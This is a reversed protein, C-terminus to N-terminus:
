IGLAQTMQVSCSQGDGALQGWFIQLSPLLPKGFAFPSGVGIAWGVAIDAARGTADQLVCVAFKDNRIVQVQVLPHALQVSGTSCLRCNSDFQHLQSPLGALPYTHALHMKSGRSHRGRCCAEGLAVVDKLLM